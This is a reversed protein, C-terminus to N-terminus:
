VVDVFFFRNINSVNQHEKCFILKFHLLISKCGYLHACEISSYAFRNSKIATAELDAKGTGQVISTHHSPPKITHHSRGVSLIMYEIRFMLLLRSPWPAEETGFRDIKPTQPNKKTKILKIIITIIKSIALCMCIKKSAFLISPELTGCVCQCQLTGTSKKMWLDTHNKSDINYQSHYNEERMFNVANHTSAPAGYLSLSSFFGFLYIFLHIFIPYLFHFYVAYLWCLFWKTEVVNWETRRSQIM